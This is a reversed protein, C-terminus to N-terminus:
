IAGPALLRLDGLFSELTVIDTRISASFKAILPEPVVVQANIQTM